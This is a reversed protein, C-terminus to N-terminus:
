LRREMIRRDEKAKQSAEEIAQIEELRVKCECEADEENAVKKLNPLLLAGWPLWQHDKVSSFTDQACKL